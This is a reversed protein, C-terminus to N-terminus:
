PPQRLEWTTAMRFLRYCQPADRPHRTASAFTLILRPPRPRSRYPGRALRAFFLRGTRRHDNRRVRLRLRLPRTPKGQLPSEWTISNTRAGGRRGAVHGRGDVDLWPVDGIAVFQIRGRRA